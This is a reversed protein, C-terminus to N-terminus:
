TMVIAWRASMLCFIASRRRSSFASAAIAASHELPSMGSQGIMSVRNPLTCDPQNVASSNLFWACIVVGFTVNPASAHTAPIALPLSPGDIEGCSRESKLTTRGSSHLCRSCSANRTLKFRLSHRGRPCEQRGHGHPHQAKCRHGSQSAADALDIAHGLPLKPGSAAMMSIATLTRKTRM